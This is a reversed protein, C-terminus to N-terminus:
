IRDAADLLRIHEAGGSLSMPASFVVYLRLQNEPVLDASPFVGVVRTSIQAEAQPVAVSAVLPQTRWPERTAGGHAPLRSPAFRVYYHQGPELPFQPTFRLAGQVVAYSGLVAPRDSSSLGGADQVEIRLLTTWDEPTMTQKSLTSLEVAPLGVVDITRAGLADSNLQIRPEAVPQDLPQSSSRCASCSVLIAAAIVAIRAM